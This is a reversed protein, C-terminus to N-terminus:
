AVASQWCLLPAWSPSCNKQQARARMLRMIVWIFMRQLRLHFLHKRYPTKHLKLNKEKTSGKQSITARIMFHSSWSLRISQNNPSFPHLLNRNLNLSLSFLHWQNLFPNRNPNRNPSRNPSFPHWQNLFPSRNPSFLHWQNRSPSFLWPSRNPHQHKSFLSRPSSWQSNQFRISRCLPLM